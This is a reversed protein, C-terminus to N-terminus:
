SINCGSYIIESASNTLIGEPAIPIPIEYVPETAVLSIHINVALVDLRLTASLIQRNIKM